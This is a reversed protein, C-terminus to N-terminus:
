LKAEIVSVLKYLIKNQKEQADVLSQIVDVIPVGGETVLLQTLHRMPDFMSEDFSELDEEDEVIDDGEDDPVIEEEVDELVGNAVPNGTLALQETLDDRAQEAQQAQQAQDPAQEAKTRKGAM